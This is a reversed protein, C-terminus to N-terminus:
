LWLKNTQKKGVLDFFLSFTKWVSLLVLRFSKKSDKKRVKFKFFFLCISFYLAAAFSKFLCSPSSRKALYFKPSCMLSTLLISPNPLHTYYHHIRHNKKRRRKDRPYEISFSLFFDSSSKFFYFLFWSIPPFYIRHSQSCTVIALDCCPPPPPRSDLLCKPSHFSILAPSAPPSFSEQNPQREREREGKACVCMCLVLCIRWTMTCYKQYTCQKWGM